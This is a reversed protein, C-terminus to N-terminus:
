GLRDMCHNQLANKDHAQKYWLVFPTQKWKNTGGREYYVAEKTDQM